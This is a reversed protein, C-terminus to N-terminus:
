QRCRGTDFHSGDFLGFLEQLARYAAALPLCLFCRLAAARVLEAGAVEQVKLQSLVLGGHPGHM